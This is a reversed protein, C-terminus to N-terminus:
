CALENGACLDVEFSEQCRAVSLQADNAQCSACECAIPSSLQVPCVQFTPQASGATM